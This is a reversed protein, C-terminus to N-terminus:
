LSSGASARARFIVFRESLVDTLRVKKETKGKPCRQPREARHGIKTCRTVGGSAKLFAAVGAFYDADSVVGVGGVAPTASATTTAAAAATVASALSVTYPYEGIAAAAAKRRAFNHNIKPKMAKVVLREDSRLLAKM